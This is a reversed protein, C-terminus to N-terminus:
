GEPEGEVERKVKPAPPVWAKLHQGVHEYFTPVLAELQEVFKRKGGFGRADDVHMWIAFSTPPTKATTGDDIAIADDRLDSLTKAIEASGGRRRAQIWVRADGGDEGVPIQRTLWNVRAKTSKKDAPADLTMECTIVRRNLDAVIEMPAAANPVVIDSTLRKDNCLAVCDDALRKKPDRKHARPLKLDVRARVLPWLKLCLERQEQHWSSVTNVVEDATRNLRADSRCRQVLDGWEANMETFGKVGSKDGDFYAVVEELIYHQDADEIGESELLLEAQTLLYTWSWHYLSVSQTLRGDVAVPHHEPLATFQNSITIVADFGHARARRLYDLLQQEDLEANNVKAEVLAKWTKKGTNLVIAGDPRRDDNKKGRSKEDPFVVETWAELRARQGVRHGLSELMVKRYEHVATLASLLISVGRRELANDAVSPILRAPEGKFGHPTQEIRNALPM